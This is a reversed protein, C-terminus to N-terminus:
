ELYGINIKGYLSLNNKKSPLIHPYTSSLRKQVNNTDAGIKEECKIM